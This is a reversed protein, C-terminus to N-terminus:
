AQNKQSIYHNQCETGREKRQKPSPPNELAFFDERQPPAGSPTAPAAFPRLGAGRPPRPYRGASPFSRQSDGARRAASPRRRAPPPSIKGSLPLEAPLRRRPPRGFAQAARPAPIDERQPPAGGPTAPAAPPSTKGSLPLEAPLRRRPPRGFAQAAPLHPTNEPGAM